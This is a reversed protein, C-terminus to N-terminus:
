KDTWSGVNEEYTYTVGTDDFTLTDGDVLTVSPYNTTNDANTWNDGTRPFAIPGGAITYATM